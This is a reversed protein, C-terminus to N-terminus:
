ANGGGDGAESSDIDQHFSYSYMSGKCCNSDSVFSSKSSLALSAVCHWILVANSLLKLSIATNQYNCVILINGSNIILFILDLFLSEQTCHGMIKFPLM